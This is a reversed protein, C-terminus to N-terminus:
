RIDKWRHHRSPYFGRIRLGSRLHIKLMRIPPWFLGFHLSQLELILFLPCSLKSLVSFPLLHHHPPLHNILVHQSKKILIIHIISLTMSLAETSRYFWPKWLWSPFDMSFASWISRSDAQYVFTGLFLGVWYILFWFNEHEHQFNLPKLILYPLSFWCVGLPLQILNTQEFLLNGMQAEFEFFWFRLLKLLGFSIIPDEVGM